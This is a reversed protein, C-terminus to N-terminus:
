AIILNNNKKNFEFRGQALYWVKRTRRKLNHVDGLNM